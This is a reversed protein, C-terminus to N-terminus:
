PQKNIWRTLYNVIDLSEYMWHVSGDNQQIRLCPVTSRGGGSRLEESAGGDLMTDRMRM